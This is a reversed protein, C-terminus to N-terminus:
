EEGHSHDKRPEHEQEAEQQICLLADVLAKVGFASTTSGPENNTFGFSRLLEDAQETGLAASLAAAQARLSPSRLLTCINAPDRDDPPAHEMVESLRGKVQEDALASGMLDLQLLDSPTPTTHMVEQQQIMEQLHAQRPALAARVQEITISTQPEAM